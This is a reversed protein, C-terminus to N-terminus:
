TELSRRLSQLMSWNENNAAVGCYVASDETSLALFDDSLKHSELRQVQLGIHELGELLRSCFVLNNEAIGGGLVMGDLGGLLAFYAGLTKRVRMQFLEVAEKAADTESRLLEGFNASEASLGAWGSRENLIRDTCDPSWAEQRQLWTVLGPDIDGCRSSMLLGENPTFGMTTDVPSGGKLAAMSCGSGLQLSVVRASEVDVGQQQAAEQWRRLLGAHAFGHFGFRRIRHKKILERPLGYLSAAVPLDHFYETDFVAFTSIEPALTALRQLCDFSHWNHLPALPLLSELQGLTSSDIATAKVFDNGGHVFRVLVFRAPCSKQLDNIVADLDDPDISGSRSALSDEIDAFWAWKLSSSGPNFLWVGKNETAPPGGDSQQATMKKISAM